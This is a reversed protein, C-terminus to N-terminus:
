ELPLTTIVRWPEDSYEVGPGLVIVEHRDLYMQIDKVNCFPQNVLGIRTKCLGEPDNYEYDLYNCVARRYEIADSKSKFIAAVYYYLEHWEGPEYDSKIYGTVTGELLYYM